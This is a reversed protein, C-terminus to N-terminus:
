YDPTAPVAVVRCHGLAFRHFPRQGKGPSRRNSRRNGRRQLRVGPGPRLDVNERDPLPLFRSAPQNHPDAELERINNFSEGTILKGAADIPQKREQERWMGLANFNELALGLPDMRSHCSSCLVNERHVALVERLTPERDKFGKESEELQPIDAPPPPPPTGLINDLVFLGRKVPSTRTPNSTVILVSGHTLVGGRPSDAPLSVRRMEQGTVDAIGYHHALRENLFTYDGHILELVSKDERVIHEFLMESERRMAQRLAGDLEINPGRNRRRNRQGRLKEFEKQREAEPLKEIRAFQARREEQQREFDRDEGADRSLVRRADIQIGDIDRLQLWQGAFNDILEDSRPDKLMRQLQQPLNKRLERKEALQFLEDDPMTSWLFYSLRSALAYEDVSPYRQGSDAAEEGESRFLFRPSALVAVMAQAIGDEFVKGPSTYATEAILVLRDITDDDVPRRYAKTAFKSLVERAYTKREAADTPPEDRTFFREYNKTKTWFQKDFPGEIKLRVIRLDLFNKKKEPDTLPELELSFRHKAADWKEDLNFTFRKNDHWSLEESLRERDDIKLVLRCRGPDSEFNGSVQVELALRYDGPNKSEFEAGLQAKDYFSM